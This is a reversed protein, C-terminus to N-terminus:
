CSFPSRLTNKIITNNDQLIIASGKLSEAKKRHVLPSRSGTDPESAGPGGGLLRESPEGAGSASSSTCIFVPHLPHVSWGHRAGHAGWSRWGWLRLQSRGQEAPPEGPQQAQAMLMSCQQVRLNPALLPSVRCFMPCSCTLVILM